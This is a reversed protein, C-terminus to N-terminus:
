CAVTFRCGVVSGNWASTIYLGASTNGNLWECEVNCDRMALRHERRGDLATVCNGQDNSIHLRVLDLGTPTSATGRMRPIDEATLPHPLRVVINNLQFCPIGENGPAVRVHGEDQGDVRCKIRYMTGSYELDCTLAEDVLFYGTITVNAARYGGEEFSAQVADIYAQVNASPDGDAGYGAGPNQAFYNSVDYTPTEVIPGGGGNGAEDLKDDLTKGDPFYVRTEAPLLTSGDAHHVHRYTGDANRHNYTRFKDPVQAAVYGVAAFAVLIAALRKM